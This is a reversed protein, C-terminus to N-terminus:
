KAGGIQSLHEVLRLPLAEAEKQLDILIARAVGYHTVNNLDNFRVCKFSAGFEEERWAVVFRSDVLGPVQERKNAFEVVHPTIETALHIQAFLDNTLTGLSKAIALVVVDGLMYIWTPRAVGAAVADEIRSTTKGDPLHIHGVGGLFGRRRWDRLSEPPIGTMEQIESPSFTRTM